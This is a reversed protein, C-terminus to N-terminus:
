RNRGGPFGGGGGGFGGSSNSTSISTLKVTESVSGASITYTEGEKLEPCTFVVSQFDKEPTYSLLVNGASDTVTLETGGKVSSALNHLFSYQTSGDASFGEEMGTAGCAVLIGGTVTGKCREGFDLAGNGGNTTGSVYVEGGEMYFDGNSDLGDGSANVRLTGGTVKLYVGESIGGFGGFGGEASGASANLGDDSATVSVKGGSITITKGELGEYSKTIEVEAEGTIELDTEAHIGDDGSSATLKGGSVTVSGNSHVSDDASDVTISGGKIVLAGGAKMGKASTGDSSSEAAATLTVALGTDATETYAAAGYSEDDGRGTRDTRRGGGPFQPMNDWGDPMSLDKWDDPISLDKWDDPISMDKWDDPISMDGGPFQGGGPFDRGQGSGSDDGDRNGGPFQGGNGGPFQGGGPMDGQKKSANASGGGSVINFTGGDILLDTEAELADGTSTIDFTGGTISIFGLAADESNNSKIGNTGATLKFEGDLIKVADKGTIATSASTVTLKGGAIVLEDKSVIGHKYSGNVTLSGSGNVTLDAKSFVAADVSSEEESTNYTSGDSLKNVSGDALTLTVKKGTPIYLPANDACSLDLGDLVLKVETKKGANVTLRGNKCSGSLIYTGPETIEVKTGDATVGKGTVEAATDSFVIKASNSADYGDDLDSDDVSTDKPVSQTQETTVAQTGSVASSNEEEGSSSDSESCGAASFAM